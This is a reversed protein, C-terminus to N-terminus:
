MHVDGHSKGTSRLVFVESFTMYRYRSSPPYLSGRSVRRIILEPCAESLLFLLTKIKKCNNENLCKPSVRSCTLIHYEWLVGYCVIHVSMSNEKRTIPSSSQNLYVHSRCLKKEGQFVEPKLFNCLSLHSFCSIRLRKRFKTTDEELNQLSVQPPTPTM